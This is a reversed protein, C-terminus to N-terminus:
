AGSRSSKGNEIAWSRSLLVLAPIIWCKALMKCDELRRDLSTFPRSCTNICSIQLPDPLTLPSSQGKFFKLLMSESQDHAPWPISEPVTPPSPRSPLSYPVSIGLGCFQSGVFQQRSLFGCLTSPSPPDKEASPPAGCGMLNALTSSPGQLIIPSAVLSRM